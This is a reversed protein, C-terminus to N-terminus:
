NIRMACPSLGGLRVLFMAPAASLLIQWLHGSVPGALASALIEPM